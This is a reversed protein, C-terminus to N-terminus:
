SKKTAGSAVEQLKGHAYRYKLMKAQSPCCIPDNPGPTKANLTIIGDKVVSDLEAEAGELNKRALSKWQGSQRSVVSIFTSWYTPGIMTWLVVQEVGPTSTDLEQKIIAKLNVGEGDGDYLLAAELAPDSPLSPKPTGEATATQIAAMCYLAASATVIKKFM